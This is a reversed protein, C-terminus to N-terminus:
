GGGFRKRVAEGTIGCSWGITDWSLERERAENVLRALQRNGFELTRVTRQLEGLLKQQPGTAKRVARPALLGGEAGRKIEVWDDNDIDAGVTLDSSEVVAKKRTM